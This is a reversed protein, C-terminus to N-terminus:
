FMRDDQSAIFSLFHYNISKQQGLRDIRKLAKVRFTVEQGLELHLDLLRSKDVRVEYAPSTRRPGTKVKVVGAERLETIRGSVVMTSSEEHLERLSRVYRRGRSTLASSRVPGSRSLWRFGLSIDHEDLAVVLSDLPGFANVWERLDGGSEAASILRVFSRMAFDVSSESSEVLWGEQEVGVSAPTPRVHLVTSGASIAVIELDVDRGSIANIGDRLHKLISEGVKFSLAGSGSREGFLRVLLEEQLAAGPDYARAAELWQTRDLSDYEDDTLRDEDSPALLDAVVGEYERSLRQRWSSM